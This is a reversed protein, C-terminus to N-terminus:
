SDFIFTLASGNSARGGGDGGNDEIENDAGDFPGMADVMTTEGAEIM